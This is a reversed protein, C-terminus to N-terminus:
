KNLLTVNLDINCQRVHLQLAQVYHSVSDQYAMREDTREYM